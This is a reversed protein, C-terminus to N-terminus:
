LTIDCRDHRCQQIREARLPRNIAAAPAFSDRGLRIAGAIFVDASEQMAPRRVTLGTHEAAVRGLQKTEGSSEVQTTRPQTNDVCLRLSAFLRSSIFPSEYSRRSKEIDNNRNMSFGPPLSDGSTNFDNRNMGFPHCFTAPPRLMASVVPISNFSTRMRFPHWFRHFSTRLPDFREPMGAPHVADNRDKRPDGSRQSGAVTQCGKPIFRLDRMSVTLDRDEGLIGSSDFDHDALVGPLTRFEFRGARSSTAFTRRSHTPSM